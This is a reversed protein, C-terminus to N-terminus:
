EQAHGAGTPSRRLIAKHTAELYESLLTIARESDRARMLRLLEERTDIVEITARIGADKVFRRVVESIPAVLLTYMPNKTAQAIISYFEANLEMQTDRDKNEIAVRSKEINQELLAFDADDAHACALKLIVKMLEVRAETLHQLSIRKLAMMDSISQSINSGDGELIFAGGSAGKQLELVGASELIRLAERVANRSVGFQLALEREAPLKDGPQLKGTEIQRRIQDSIAEFTRINKVPKFVTIM